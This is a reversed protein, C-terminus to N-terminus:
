SVQITAGTKPSFTGGLSYRSGPFYFINKTAIIDGSWTRRHLALCPESSNIQLHDRIWPDPIIAEVVHEVASVPSVSVLYDSVSITTFDQELFLPAIGPNIYRCGLQIPINNDKHIILSHYVTSYPALEMAQALSPQAKEEQLLKVDSSYIGGRDTIEQEISKIELLASQQKAKAVFTGRGQTRELIGESALERLARNVTMRSVNLTVVLEAESEIQMGATLEGSKIKRLVYDKVQQYLPPPSNAVLLINRKIYNSV